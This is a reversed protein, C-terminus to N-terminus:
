PDPFDLEDTKPGVRKNVTAVKGNLRIRCYYNGSLTATDGQQYSTWPFDKEQKGADHLLAATTQRV